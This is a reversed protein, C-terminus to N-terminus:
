SGSAMPPDCVRNAMMDESAPSAQLYPTNNKRRSGSNPPLIALRFPAAAAIFKVLVSHYGSEAHITGRTVGTAARPRELVRKGDLFVVAEAESELYVTWNGSDSLYTSSDAYFVGKVGAFAPLEFTGEPFVLEHPEHRSFKAADKAARKEPAFRRAFKGGGYGFHGDLHWDTLLGAERSNELLEAQDMIKKQEEASQPTASPQAAKIKFHDLWGLHREQASLTQSSFIAGALLLALIGIWRSCRTAAPRSSGSDAGAPAIRVSQCRM